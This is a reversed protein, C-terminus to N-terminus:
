RKAADGLYLAAGGLRPARVPELGDEARRANTVAEILRFADAKAALYDGEGVTQRDWRRYRLTVHPLALGAEQRNLTFCWLIDENVRLAPWGGAALALSSAVVLNNPHFLMPSTWLEEVERPQWLREADFWHPTRGGDQCVLNTPHWLTSGFRPDSLLGEWGACDLVDDGDLRFVWGDGGMAGLLLNRAVSVGVQRGVVKFTDAGDPRLPPPADGDVAVHWLVETGTPALRARLEAVSSSTADLHECLSAHVATLLHLRM